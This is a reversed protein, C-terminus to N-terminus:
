NRAALSLTTSLSLGLTHALTPLIPCIQLMEVQKNRRMHMPLKALSSLGKPMRLLMAQAKLPSLRTLQVMAVATEERHEMGGRRASLMARRIGKQKKVRAWIRTLMLMTKKWPTWM